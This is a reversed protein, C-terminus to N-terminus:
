IWHLGLYVAAIALPLRAFLREWQGFILGDFVTIAIAGYMFFFIAGPELNIVGRGHAARNFSWRLMAYLPPVAFLGVGRMVMIPNAIKAEISTEFLHNKELEVGLRRIAGGTDGETKVAEAVLYCVEKLYDSGCEDAAERLAVDFPLLDARSIADEFVASPGDTNRCADAVATEVADGARLRDGIGKVLEHVRVIFEHDAKRMATDTIELGFAIGGLAVRAWWEDRVFVQMLALVPDVGEYGVLALFFSFAIPVGLVWQFFRAIQKPGIGASLIANM